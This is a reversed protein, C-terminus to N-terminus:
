RTTPPASVLFPPNENIASTNRGQPRTAKSIAGWEWRERSEVCACTEKEQGGLGTGHDDLNYLVRVM